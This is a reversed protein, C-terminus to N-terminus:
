ENDVGFHQKLYEVCEFAGAKKGSAYTTNEAQHKFAVDECRSVCERVILEFFTNHYEDHSNIYMDADNHIDLKKKTLEYATRMFDRIHENM